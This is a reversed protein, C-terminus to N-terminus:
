GLNPMQPPNQGLQGMAGAINGMMSPDFPAVIAQFSGIIMKAQGQTAQQNGGGAEPLGPLGNIPTQTPTAGSPMINDFPGAKMAPEKQDDQIVATQPVPSLYFENM